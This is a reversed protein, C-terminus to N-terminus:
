RQFAVISIIKLISIHAEEQHWQWSGQHRIAPTSGMHVNWLFWPLIEKGRKPKVNGQASVTIFITALELWFSFIWFGIKIKNIYVNCFHLLQYEPVNPRSLLFHPFYLCFIYRERLKAPKWCVDKPRSNLSKWETGFWFVLTQPFLVPYEAGSLVLM